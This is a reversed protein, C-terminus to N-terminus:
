YQGVITYKKAAKASETCSYFKEIKCGLLKNEAEQLTAFKYPQGVTGYYEYLYTM